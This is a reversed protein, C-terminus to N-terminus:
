SPGLIFSAPVRLTNVANGKPIRASTRWREAVQGIERKPGILGGVHAHRAQELVQREGAEIAANGAEDVFEGADLQEDEVVKSGVAEGVLLAEMQEFDDLLAIPAFGGQDGGLGGHGFPM